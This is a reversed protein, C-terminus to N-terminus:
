ECRLADAADISTARLIPMLAAIGAVCLICVTAMVFAVPDTPSVRFLLRRVVQGLFVAAISGILVGVVTVKMGEILVVVGVDRPKAGLAMRLGMEGTRRAVSYSLLGFVGFACLLLALAGFLTCVLATARVPRVEEAVMEKMPVVTLAPRGLVSGLVTARVAGLLAEPRGVSRIVLATAGGDGQAIPRYFQMTPREFISSRRSDEAVGIVRVCSPNYNVLFCQGVVEEGPWLTAAMTENVVAVLVSGRRDQSAFGRGRLIRTGMALFYGDSVELQYPLESNPPLRDRGPVSVLAGFSWGLPSGVTMAVHEVGLISSLREMANMYVADIDPTRLGSGRYDLSVVIARDYDFGLRESHLNVLSRVFLLAGVTLVFSLAIQLVILTRQLRTHGADLGRMGARLVSAVDTRLGLYVLGLSSLLGALTTAAITVAVGRWQVPNTPESGPPLLATSIFRGFAFALVIGLVGGFASLGISEVLLQRSLRVRSAGLVARIAFEQRRRLGRLLLLSAVNGCCVLLVCVGVAFLWGVLRLHDSRDPTRGEEIGGLTVRTTSGSPLSRPAVQDYAIAMRLAVQHRTFGPRPRVILRLWSSSQGTYADRGFLDQATPVLALWVEVAAGETGRFGREAVGVVLAPTGGVRISRGVITSDGGFKARWVSHSLVIWTVDPTEGGSMGLRGLAPQVGLTSFYNDSVLSARASSAEAGQGVLVDTPWYAVVDGSSGLERRLGQYAPYSTTSLLRASGASQATFYVRALGSADQVGPSVRFLLADLAAFMSANAGIGLALSLVIALTLVPARSLLRM